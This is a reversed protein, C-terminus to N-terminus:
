AWLRPGADGVIASYRRYREEAERYEPTREHAAITRDWTADSMGDTLGHHAIRARDRDAELMLRRAEQKTM